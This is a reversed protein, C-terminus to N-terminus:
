RSRIREYQPRTWREVAERVGPGARAADDRPEFPLAPNKGDRLGALRMAEREGEDVDLGFHAPLEDRVFEALDRHDVFRGGEPGAALAADFLSGIVRAVYEVLELSPLEERRIGFLEPPLEGPVAHAGLHRLHSCVVELPDRYLVIWPTQPFAARLTAHELISWSDLKVVFRRERGTRPRGLASVLSRLWRRHEDPARLLADLPPPESVVLNLPSAALMQAVATSGCRSVHFVFGNPELGPEVAALLDLPLRRPFLLSFPSRLAADLTEWFFPETFARRGTYRWEVEGGPRDLRVRAPTWENLDM